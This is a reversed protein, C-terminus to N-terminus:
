DKRVPTDEPTHAPKPSPSTINHLVPTLTGISLNVVLSALVCLQKLEKASRLSIHHPGRCLRLATHHAGGASPYPFIIHRGQLCNLFIFPGGAAAYPLIM